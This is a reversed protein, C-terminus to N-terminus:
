RKDKIKAIKNKCDVLIGFGGNKNGKMSFSNNSNIDFFVFELKTFNIITVSNCIM